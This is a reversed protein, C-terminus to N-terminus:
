VVKEKPILAGENDATWMSLTDAPPEPHPAMLAKVFAAYLIDKDAANGEDSM